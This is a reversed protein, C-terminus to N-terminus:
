RFDENGTQSQEAQHPHLPQQDYEGAGDVRVDNEVVAHEARATSKGIPRVHLMEVQLDVHASSMQAAIPKKGVPITGCRTRL